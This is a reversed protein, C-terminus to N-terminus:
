NGKAIAQILDQKTIIHWNGGMDMMLVAANNKNIKSSVEEITAMHSVIPYPKSMIVSVPGNMLDRNKLLEAYLKADEVAGVFDGNKNKVPLQSVSFKQMMQIVHECPDEDNVCLLPLQAHGQILDTATQLSKPAIFGRDRMWDENYMKGLYRTGHDHFIVVVVDTPKFRDRMQLIGALASGASNGVFIGEERPIRRTMVAADKDTVKEFHDIISFDVNAPLFDEGIGETIYSIPLACTQVGTM